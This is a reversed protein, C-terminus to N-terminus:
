LQRRLQSASTRMGRRVELLVVASLWGWRSGPSHCSNLAASQKQTGWFLRDLWRQTRTGGESADTKKGYIVPSHQGYLPNSWPSVTCGVLNLHQRMQEGYADLSYHIGGQRKSGERIWQVAQLCDSVWQCVCVPVSHLKVCSFTRLLFIQSWSMLRCMPRQAAARGEDGARRPSVHVQHARWISAM